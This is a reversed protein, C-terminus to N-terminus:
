QVPCSPILYTIGLCKIPMSRMLINVKIHASLQGTFATLNDENDEANKMGQSSPIIFDGQTDMWGPYTRRAGRRPSNGNCLAMLHEDHLASIHLSRTSNICLLLFASSYANPKPTYFKFVALNHLLVKSM